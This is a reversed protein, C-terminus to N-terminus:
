PATESPSDALGLLREAFEFQADTEFSLHIQRTQPNSRVVGCALADLRSDTPDELAARLRYNELNAFRFLRDFNDAAETSFKLEGRLREIEDAAELVAQEAVIRVPANDLCESSRLLEVLRLNSAQDTV